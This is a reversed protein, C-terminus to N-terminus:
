NPNWIEAEAFLKPKKFCIQWLFSYREPVFLSFMAMSNKM